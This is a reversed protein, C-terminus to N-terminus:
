LGYIIEITVLVGYINQLTLDISAKGVSKWPDHTSPTNRGTKENM